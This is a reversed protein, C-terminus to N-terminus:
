LELELDEIPSCECYYGKRLRKFKKSQQLDTVISSIRPIKEWQSRQRMIM